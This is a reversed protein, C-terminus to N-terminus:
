VGKFKPKAKRATARKEYSARHQELKERGQTEATLITQSISNILETISTYNLGGDGRDPLTKRAIEWEATLHAKLNRGRNTGFLFYGVAGAVIGISFGSLFSGQDQNAM